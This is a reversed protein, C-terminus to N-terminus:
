QPRPNLEGRRWWEEGQRAVCPAAMPLGAPRLMGQTAQPVFAFCPSCMFCARRLKLFSLSARAVVCPAAM